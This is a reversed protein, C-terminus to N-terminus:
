TVIAAHDIMVERDPNRDHWPPWVYSPPSGHELLGVDRIVGDNLMHAIVLSQIHM